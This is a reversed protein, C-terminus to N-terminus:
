ATASGPSNATSAAIIGLRIRLKTITRPDHGTEPPQNRLTPTPAHRQSLLTLHSIGQPGQLTASAGPPPPQRRHLLILREHLHEGTLHGHDLARVMPPTSREVIMRARSTALFPARSANADDRGPVREPPTSGSNTIARSSAARSPSASLSIATFTVKNSPFSRQPHGGAHGGRTSAPVLAARNSRTSPATPSPQLVARAQETSSSSLRRHRRQCCRRPAPRRSSWVAPPVATCAMVGLLAGPSGPATRASPRCRRRSGCARVGRSM